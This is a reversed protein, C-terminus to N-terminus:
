SPPIGLPGAGPNLVGGPDLAQKVAAAAARDSAPVVRAIWPAYARGFGHEAAIWGGHDLTIAIVDARAAGHESEDLGHVNVHMAQAALHGFLVVPRPAFLERLAAEFRGLARLPVGVAAKFVPDPGTTIESLAERTRWLRDRTERDDGVLAEGAELSALAAFPDHASATEVYVYAHAPPDFLAAIGMTEALLGVADAHFVAEVSEVEAIRVAAATLAVADETSSVPVVALARRPHASALRIRAATVIALAGESGALLHELGTGPGQGTGGIVSGDALVAEIRQTLMRMSGHRWAHRGAADTAILGGVTAEARANIDLPFEFGAASAAEQVAQLTAGGGTILSPTGEDDLSIEALRRLSVVLEGGTPTAGMALGTNGGQPIVPVGAEAATAVLAQIELADAPRAVAVPSGGKEGTWATRYPLTVDPDVLLHSDGVIRRLSGYLAHQMPMPPGWKPSQVTCAVVPAPMSVLIPNMPVPTIPKLM